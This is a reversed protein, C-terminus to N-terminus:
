EGELWTFNGTIGWISNECVNFKAALFKVKVGSIYLERIQRAEAMNLKTHRSNRAQEKRTAWRCNDPSYPGDNNIRDLTHKPTPKFGMDGLFNEFTGWRECVKIGRGGYDKYQHKKINNCRQRMAVWIMHESTRTLGHWREKRLCGCSKADGRRLGSGIIEKVVGCSCKCIFKRAGGKTRNKSQRLVTLRHFVDGAKIPFLKRM